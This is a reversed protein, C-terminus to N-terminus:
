HNVQICQPCMLKNNKHGFCGNSWRHVFKFPCSEKCVLWDPCRYLKVM